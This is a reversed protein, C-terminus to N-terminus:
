QLTLSFGFLIILVGAIVNPLWTVFRDLLLTLTGLQLLAVAQQLFIIFIYWKVIEGLINPLHTHGVAKMLKAKRMKTDLGIKELIIRVVHGIILAIFYGIILIIIAAILGPLIKGFSIWLTYLPDLILAGTQALEGAM